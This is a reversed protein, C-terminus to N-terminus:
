PTSSLAMVIVATGSAILALAWIVDLDFWAARLARLGLYRGQTILATVGFLVICRVTLLRSRRRNGAPSQSRQADLIRPRAKM